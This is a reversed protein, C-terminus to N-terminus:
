TLKLNILSTLLNLGITLSIKSVNKLNLQVGIFIPWSDNLSINEFSEQLFLALFEFKKEFFKVFQQHPSHNNTFSFTINITLKSSFWYSTPYM